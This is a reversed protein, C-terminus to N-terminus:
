GLTEALPNEIRHPPPHGHGGVATCGTSSWCSVGTLGGYDSLPASPGATWVHGNWTEIVPPKSPPFPAGVAVCSARSPCSVDVLDDNATPGSMPLRRWSHGTWLAALAGSTSIPRLTVAGVAICAAASWCSVSTWGPSGPRNDVPGPIASWTSGNWVETLSEGLPDAADGVAICGSSSWCSVGFLESEPIAPTTLLKWDRGNWAEALAKSARTGHWDYGVAICGSKSWCSVANGIAAGFYGGGTTPTATPTTKWTSGNWVEALPENDPTGGVAICGDSAWCSVGFLGGPTSTSQIWSGRSWVETLTRELPSFPGTQGVAVCAAGSLCSVAALSADNATTGRNPTSQVTWPAAAAFAASSAATACLLGALIRALRRWRM